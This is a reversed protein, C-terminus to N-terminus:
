SVSDWLLSETWSLGLVNCPIVLGMDGLMSRLPGLFCAPTATRIDLLIFKLSFDILLSPSPCKISMVYKMWCLGQVCVPRKIDLYLHGCVAVSFLLCASLRATKCKFGLGRFLLCKSFTLLVIFLKGVPYLLLSIGWFSIVIMIGNVAETIGQLTEM